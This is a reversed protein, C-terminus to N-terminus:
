EDKSQLTWKWEISKAQEGEGAEIRATLETGARQYIIRQPFDNKLNEFVVRSDGSEKLKFPVPERGSPSAYYFVGEDSAAIRLFEFSVRGRNSVMRNMGIMTGQVPTTWHEEVRSRDNEALWFGALWALNEVQKVNDDQIEERSEGRGIESSGVEHSYGSATPLLMVISVAVSIQFCVFPKM